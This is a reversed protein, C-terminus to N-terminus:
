PASHPVGEDAAQAGGPRVEPQEPIGVRQAVDRQALVHAVGVGGLQVRLLARDLCQAGALHEHDIRAPVGACARDSVDEGGARERAARRADDRVASRTVAGRECLELHRGVVLCRVRGHEPQDVVRELRVDRDRAAPCQHHRAVHDDAVGFTHDDNGGRHGLVDRV